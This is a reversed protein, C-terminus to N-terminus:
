LQQEKFETFVSSQAIIKDARERRADDKTYDHINMKEKLREAKAMIDQILALIEPDETRTYENLGIGVIDWLDRLTQADEQKVKSVLSMDIIKM